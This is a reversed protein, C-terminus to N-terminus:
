KALAFKLRLTRCALAMAARVPPTDRLADLMLFDHITGNIRVSSVPVGARMLRAGYAEGEDRLVDNEATIILAPPLNVLENVTAQLPSACLDRRRERDPCYANWFWKMAKRTLWPGDAFDHYSSSRFGADTVPYFLMQLALLPFRRERAMLTVAAAMNGGVGDGAVAFRGPALNYLAPNESIGAVAAFAQRLPLPYEVEPSSAYNVFAVAMGSQAALDSVFRRHTEFGGLIWGGGHFYFIVPLPERVGAPRVINVSVPKGLKENSVQVEEIDVPLPETWRSQLDILFARAEEISMKHLPPTGQKELAKLFRSTEPNLSPSKSSPKSM